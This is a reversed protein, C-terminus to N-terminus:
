HHDPPDYNWWWYYRKWHDDYYNYYCRYRYKNGHSGYKEYSCWFYNPYDPNSGPPDYGKNHDKLWWKYEHWRGDDKYKYSCRYYKEHGHSGYKEYHCSFYKPYDDSPAGKVISPTSSTTM